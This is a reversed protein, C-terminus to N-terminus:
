KATKLSLIYVTAGAAIIFLLTKGFSSHVFFLSTYGIGSWQAFILLMKTQVSIGNNKHYNKIQPGVFRNNLLMNNFKRSSKSFCISALVLFPITPMIPLLFGIIGLFVFIFGAITLLKKKLQKM